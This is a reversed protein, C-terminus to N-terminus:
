RGRPKSSVRAGSRNTARLMMGNGIPRIQFIEQTKRDGDTAASDNWAAFLIRKPEHSLPGKIEFEVTGKRYFKGLDWRIQADGQQVSWGEPTFASMGPRVEAGKPPATLKEAIDALAPTVAADVLATITLLTKMHSISNPMDSSRKM